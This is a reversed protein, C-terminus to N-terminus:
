TPIFNQVITLPYEGQTMVPVRTLVEQDALPLM